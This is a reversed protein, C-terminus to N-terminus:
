RLEIGFCHAVKKLSQDWKGRNIKDLLMTAETRNIPKEVLEDKWMVSPTDSKSCQELIKLVNKFSLYTQLNPSVGRAQEALLIFKAYGSLHEYKM